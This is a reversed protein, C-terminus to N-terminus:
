VLLMLVSVHARDVRLDAPTVIRGTNGLLQRRVIDVVDGEVRRDPNAVPALLQHAQQGFDARAAGAVIHAVHGLDDAMQPITNRRQRVRLFAFANQFGGAHVGNAAAVIVIRGVVDVVVIAARSPFVQAATRDSRRM